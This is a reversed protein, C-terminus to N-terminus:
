QRVQNVHSQIPAFTIYQGGGSIEICQGSKCAAPVEVCIEGNVANAAVCCLVVRLKYVRTATAHEEASLMSIMLLLYLLTAVRM